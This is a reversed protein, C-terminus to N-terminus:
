SGSAPRCGPVGRASSTTSVTPSGRPSRPRRRDRGGRRSRRRRVRRAQRLPHQRRDHGLLPVPGPPRRRAPAPVLAAEGRAPRRRRRAVRGRAPRLLARDAERHHVQGRRVRGRARHLRGAARRRRPRPHRRGRRLRLPRRRARPPGRDPGDAEGQPRDVIDQEADLITTIKGMAASAAQVQGYLESLEQLPQFVLQLLGVAAILVGIELTGGDIMLAGAYLVAVTAVVGLFEIAPFFVSSLKQAHVNSRRNAENLEEFEHQFARERGFAQVVAM